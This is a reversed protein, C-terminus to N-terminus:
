FRAVTDANVDQHAARSRRLREVDDSDFIEHEFVQAWLEIMQERLEARTVDTRAIELQERKIIM